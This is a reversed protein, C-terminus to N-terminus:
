WRGPKVWTAIVRAVAALPYLFAAPLMAFLWKARRTRVRRFYAITVVLWLLPVAAGFVGFFLAEGTRSALNLDNLLSLPPVTAGVISVWFLARNSGSSM